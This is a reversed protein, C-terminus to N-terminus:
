MWTSPIISSQALSDRPSCSRQTQSPSTVLSTSGIDTTPHSLHGQGQPDGDHQHPSLHDANPWLQSQGRVTLMSPTKTYHQFSGVAGNFTLITGTTSLISITTTIIPSVLVTITTIVPCPFILSPHCPCHHRHRHCSLLPLLFFAAALHLTSFWAFQVLEEEV